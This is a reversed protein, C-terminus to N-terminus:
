FITENKVLEWYTSNTEPFIQVSGEELLENLLRLTKEFHFGCIGMIRSTPLRGFTKLAKLIKQKDKKM